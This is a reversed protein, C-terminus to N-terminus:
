YVPFINVIIFHDLKCLFLPLVKKIVDVGTEDTRKTLLFSVCYTGSSRVVYGYLEIASQAVMLNMSVYLIALYHLKAICNQLALECHLKSISNQLAIESHLKSILIKLSIQLSM